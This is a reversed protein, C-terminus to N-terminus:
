GVRHGVIGEYNVKHVGQYNGRVERAVVEKSPEGGGAGQAAARAERIADRAKTQVQELREVARDREREAADREGSASGSEEELESIRTEYREKM